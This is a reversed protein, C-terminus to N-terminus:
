LNRIFWRAAQQGMSPAFRHQGPVLRAHFRSRRERDYREYAASIARKAQKFGEVPAKNDGEANVCLLFRPAILSAITDLDAVKLVGPLYYYWEHRTLLCKALISRYTTLACISITARIRTDLAALWLAKTGGMSFGACGIRSTLVDGRSCLYDLAAAEDRLMAAFLSDGDWFLRRATETEDAKREGFCLSDIGFVGFGSDLLGKALAGAGSGKELM